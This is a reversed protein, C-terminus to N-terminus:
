GFLGAFGGVHSHRWSNLLSNVLLHGRWKLVAHLFGFWCPGWCDGREDLQRRLAGKHADLAAAAPGHDAHGPWLVADRLHRALFAAALKRDAIKCRRRRFSSGYRLHQPPLTVIAACAAGKPRM